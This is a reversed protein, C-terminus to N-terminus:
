DYTITLLTSGDCDSPFCVWTGNAQNAGTDTVSFTQSTPQVAFDETCGSAVSTLVDGDDISTTTYVVRDLYANRTPSCIVRHDDVELELTYAWSHWVGTTQLCHDDDCISVGFIPGSLSNCGSTCTVDWENNTQDWDVRITATASPRHVRL